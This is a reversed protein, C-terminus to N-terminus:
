QLVLPLDFPFLVASSTGHLLDRLARHAQGITSEEGCSDLASNIEMETLPSDFDQDSSDEPSEPCIIAPFELEDLEALLDRHSIKSPSAKPTLPEPTPVKSSSGSRSPPRM